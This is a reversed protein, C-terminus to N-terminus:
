HWRRTYGYDAGLESQDDFANKAAEAEGRIHLCIYVRRHV